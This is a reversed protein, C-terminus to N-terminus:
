KGVAKRAADHRDVAQQYEAWAQSRGDVMSGYCGTRIHRMNADNMADRADHLEKWAAASALAEDYAALLAQAEDPQLTFGREAMDVAQELPTMPEPAKGAGGCADCKALNRCESDFVSAATVIKGYGKCVICKDSM